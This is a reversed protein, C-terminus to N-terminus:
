ADVPRALSVHVHSSDPIWTVNDLFVFSGRQGFALEFTSVPVVPLTSPQPPQQAPRYGTARRLILPPHPPQAAAAGAPLPDPFDIQGSSDIEVVGANAIRMQTTVTISRVESPSQRLVNMNQESPRFVAVHPRDGRREMTATLRVMMSFHGRSAAPRQGPPNLFDSNPRPEENAPRFYFGVTMELCDENALHAFSMTIPTMSMIAAISDREDEIRETNLSRNIQDRLRARFHMPLYNVNARRQLGRRCCPCIMNSKCWSYVIVMASFSHGCPLTMKSHEPNDQIFPCGPLFALEATSIPELAIPCEDDPSPISLTVRIKEIDNPFRERGVLMGVLEYQIPDSPNPVSTLNAKTM